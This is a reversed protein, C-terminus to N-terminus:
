QVIITNSKLIKKTRIFCDLEYIDRIYNPTNTSVSWYLMNKLDCESITDIPKTQAQGNDPFIIFQNETTIIGNGLCSYHNGIKPTELFTIESNYWFKSSKEQYDNDPNFNKFVTCNNELYDITDQSIMTKEIRKWLYEPNFYFEFYNDKDLVFYCDNVYLVTDNSASKLANLLTGKNKTENGLYEKM